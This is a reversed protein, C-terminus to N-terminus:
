CNLLLLFECSKKIFDLVRLVSDSGLFILSFTNLDSYIYSIRTSKCKKLM